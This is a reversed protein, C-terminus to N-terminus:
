GGGLETMTSLRRIKPLPASELVRLRLRRTTVPAFTELRLRGITQGEAVSRWGGELEAEIRYKGVRQGGRLDEELEVAIVPTPREWVLELTMGESWRGESSTEAVVAGFRRRIDDGLETLRRVEADPILGRRDPTMNILLNAGHGISHRYIDRLRELPALAADSGPTWFWSPRTFVDAEPVIWGTAGPPLYNAVEQGPRVVNWLPYPALGDENGPWRVDPQTGGMIVAHPQLQRAMAILRDWYAPGVPKGEPRLVDPGFPDLAGDLWIECLEGYGTLIERFQAEFVPFYRDLDGVLRRQRQPEPTSFCGQNVDGASLYLGVSLGAQRAAATFERLVDGQGARWPSNRVGYTTTKTQWLCFGNHHKATLVVHRAGMAKAAAVWQTADLERPNFTAAPPQATMAGWAGLDFAYPERLTAPFVAAAEGDYGTAMGFHIFAGFQREQFALQRASPVVAAPEAFFAEFLQGSLGEFEALQLDGASQQDGGNFYVLTKGQWECLEADSANIEKVARHEGQHWYQFQRTEDFTLFPRDVPADEWHILDRSRTIRTEWTGGLDQLYLTYYWGGEYYLAPGGVYKERGYIAERILTWHRLDTSECYKFTFAPWRKDDTEYLLIFRDAGRCVAVNFLHEGPEARLVVEPNTWHQLDASTTLTIETVTRWQTNAPHAAAFVYVRDEWVFAMAFSHGVLAVSVLRDAAVDWVRVVDEMYREGCTARPLEMFKQWNELRYLRGQFVFPTTEGMIPKIPGRKVLPNQWGPSEAVTLEGNGTETQSKARNTM